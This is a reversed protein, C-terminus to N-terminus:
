EETVSRKKYVYIALMVGAGGVLILLIAGILFMSNRNQSTGQDTSAAIAATPSLVEEGGQALVPSIQQKPIFSPTVDRRPNTKSTVKGDINIKESVIFEENQGLVQSTQLRVTRKV